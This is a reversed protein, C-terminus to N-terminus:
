FSSALTLKDKPRIANWLIGSRSRLLETIPVDQFYDKLIVRLDLKQASSLCDGLNIQLTTNYLTEGSVKSSWKLHKFAGRFAATM